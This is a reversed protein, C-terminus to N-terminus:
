QIEISSLPFIKEKRKEDDLTLLFLNRYTPDNCDKSFKLIIPLGLIGFSQFM